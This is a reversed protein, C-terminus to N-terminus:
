SLKSKIRANVQDAIHDWHHKVGALFVEPTVDTAIAVRAAMEHLANLIESIDGGYIRVIEELAERQKGHVVNLVHDPDSM